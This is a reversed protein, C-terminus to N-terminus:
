QEAVVNRAAKAAAADTARRKGSEALVRAAIDTPVANLTLFVWAHAAGKEADIAIGQEIIKALYTDSRAQM